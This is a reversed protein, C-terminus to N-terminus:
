VGGGLNSIIMKEYYDLYENFLEIIVVEGGGYYEILLVFMWGMFFM